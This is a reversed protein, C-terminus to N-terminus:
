LGLFATVVMEVKMGKVTLASTGVIARNPWPESFYRKWQENIVKSDAVDVLYVVVQVVDRLSGGAAALIMKLNEFALESQTAIDGLRFSGDKEIPVAVTYLTSGARVAWSIPAVNPLTTDITEM